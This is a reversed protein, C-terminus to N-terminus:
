VICDPYRPQNETLVEIPNIWSKMNGLTESAPRLKTRAKLDFETNSKWYRGTESMLDTPDTGPDFGAEVQGSDM